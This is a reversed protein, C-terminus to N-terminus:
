SYVQLTFVKTLNRTKIGVKRDYVTPEFFAATDGYDIVEEGTDNVNVV